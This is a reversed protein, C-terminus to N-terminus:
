GGAESGTETARVEWGCGPEYRYTQRGLTIGYHRETNDIVIHAAEITPIGRVAFQRPRQKPIGGRMNWDLDDLETM